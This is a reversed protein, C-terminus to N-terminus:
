LVVRQAPQCQRPDQHRGARGHGDQADGDRAGVGAGARVVGRSMGALWGAIAGIVLWIILADIAM